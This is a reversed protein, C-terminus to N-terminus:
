FGKPKYPNTILNGRYTQTGNVGAGCSNCFNDEKQTTKCCSENIVKELGYDKAHNEFWGNGSDKFSVYAQKGHGECSFSTKYCNKWLQRILDRINHDIQLKDMTAAMNKKM